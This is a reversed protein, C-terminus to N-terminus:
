KFKNFKNWEEKLFRNQQSNQTDQLLFMKRLEKTNPFIFKNNAIEPGVLEKVGNIAVIGRTHEVTKKAIDARLMFDIYEHAADINKAKHPIVFTDIYMPMGEKLELLVLDNSGEYYLYSSWGLAACINNNKFDKVLNDNNAYKYYPRLKILSETTDSILKNTLKFDSGKYLMFASYIHLPNEILGIGCEALKSAYNENFLLDWSFVFDEKLLSKVKEEKVAIVVLGAVYPIAYKNGYDFPYLKQMLDKNLNKHNTIKDLQLPLIKNNEIWNNLIYHTPTVLDVDESSDILNELEQMSSFEKLTVKIHTEKEFESILSKNAYGDWDYIILEQAYGNFSLCSLVLLYCMKIIKM